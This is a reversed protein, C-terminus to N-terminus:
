NQTDWVKYQIKRMDESTEIVQHAVTKVGISNNKFCNEVVIIKGDGDNLRQLLEDSAVINMEITLKVAHYTKKIGM